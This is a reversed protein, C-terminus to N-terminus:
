AVRSYLKKNLPYLAKILRDIMAFTAGNDDYKPIAAELLTEPIYLVHTGDIIKEAPVGVDALLKPDKVSIKFATAYYRGDIEEMHDCLQVEQGLINVMGINDGYQSEVVDSYKMM